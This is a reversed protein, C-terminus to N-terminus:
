TTALHEGFLRFMSRAGEIAERRAAPDHDFQGLLQLLALWKERTDAGYGTFFMLGTEPALGFRRRFQKSLVAGGLMSGEIVYLAGLLRQEGPFLAALREDLRTGAPVTGDVGLAKLDSALWPTKLRDRCYFAAFNPARVGPARIGPARVGPARDARALLFREFTDYFTHYKWLLRGYDKLEFDAHMLDMRNEIDDHEARTAHRIEDRLAVPPTVTTSAIDPETTTHMDPM